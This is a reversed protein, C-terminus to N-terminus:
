IFFKELKLEFYKKDWEADSVTPHGEEYEKTRANLWSVLGSVKNFDDTM